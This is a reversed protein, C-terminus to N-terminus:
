NDRKALEVLQKGICLVITFRCAAAEVAEGPLRMITNSVRGLADLLPSGSQNGLFLTPHEVVGNPLEVVFFHALPPFDPADSSREGFQIAYETIRRGLSDSPNGNGDFTSCNAEKLVELSIPKAVHDPM